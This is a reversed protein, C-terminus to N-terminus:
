KLVKRDLADSLDIANTERQKKSAFQLEFNVIYVREIRLLGEGELFM